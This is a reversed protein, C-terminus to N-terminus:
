RDIFARSAVDEATTPVIKPSLFKSVVAFVILIERCPECRFSKSSIAIM